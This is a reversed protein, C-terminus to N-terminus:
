REGQTARLAYRLTNRAFKLLRNFAMKLKLVEAVRLIVESRLGECESPFVTM